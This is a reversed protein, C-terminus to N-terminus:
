SLGRGAPLTALLGLDQSGYLRRLELQCSAALRELAECSRELQEEDTATVTLYGSFRYSAHGGALEAERQVVAEHDRRARATVAFGHKRRLEADAVGSTRAHEADRSARLPAVPALTVSLTRRAIGGTVLPVLFDSGVDSRPWEAIWFSAHWTRDTRLSEWRVEYSLPWPNSASGIGTISFTGAIMDGLREPSLAGEVQVGARRLAADLSAVEDILRTGAHLDALESQRRPDRITVVFYLEHRFGSSRLDRTLENYSVQEASLETAPAAPARSASQEVCREIWQLRHLGSGDRALSALVRSWSAVRDRREEVGLLAFGSGEAALVASRTGAAADKVVGIAGAGAGAGLDAESLELQCFRQARRAIEAPQRRVGASHLPRVPSRSASSTSPPSPTEGRWPAASRWQRRGTVTLVVQRGAAPLWEEITRGRVPWCACAIGALVFILAFLVGIVGSSIRLTLVALVLSGAVVAVQGGRWGALLGRRERGGLRYRDQVDEADVRMWTESDM